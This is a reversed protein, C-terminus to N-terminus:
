KGFSAKQKTKEKRRRWREKVDDNEARGANTRKSVRCAIQKEGLTSDTCASLVLGDSLEDLREM